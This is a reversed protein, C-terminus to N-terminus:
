TRPPLARAPTRIGLITEFLAHVRTWMRSLLSQISTAKARDDFVGHAGFPGDVTHFLNEPRHTGFARKEALQSGVGKRALYHDVYGPVTKQGLIAKWTPWGVYIERRRHGIVDAIARAAVEPQFIPPV